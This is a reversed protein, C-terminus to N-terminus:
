GDSGSESTCGVPCGGRVLDIYGMLGYDTQMSTVGVVIGQHHNDKDM